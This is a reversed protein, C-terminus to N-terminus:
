EEMFYNPRDQDCDAKFLRINESNTTFFHIDVNKLEYPEFYNPIINIDGTKKIFGANHLVKEDIGYQYFDIYEYGEEEILKEIEFSINNLDEENGLFDVIRLIKSNNQTIERGIILSYVADCKVNKIGFVKYQYIPHKYYRKEIYWAEKFPNSNSKNYSEYNFNGLLEEFNNLLILEFGKEVTYPIIIKEGIKAINYSERNALRYFHQLSGTTYGLFKYIGETKKNIGVSSVSKYVNDETLYKLLEVGLFPNEKSISKWMVTMINQNENGYEIFGLIAQIDKNKEAIVFNLGKNFNMFEYIFFGKSNALIHKYAWNKKIFKMISDIDAINAYRIKCSMKNNGGDRNLM